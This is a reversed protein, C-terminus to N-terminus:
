VVLLCLNNPGIIYDFNDVLKQNIEPTFNLNQSWLHAYIPYPTANDGYESIRTQVDKVEVFDQLEINEISTNENERKEGIEQM